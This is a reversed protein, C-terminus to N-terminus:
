IYIIYILIYYFTNYEFFLQLNLICFYMFISLDLFVMYWICDKFLVKIEYKIAGKLANVCGNRWKELLELLYCDLYSLWSQLSVRCRCSYSFRSPLLRSLQTLVSHSVRCRCSYSFTNQSFCLLDFSCSM